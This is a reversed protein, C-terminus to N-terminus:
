KQTVAGTITGGLSSKITITSVSSVVVQLSYKGRGNNVMTGLLQGTASNFLTLTPTTSSSTAEAKLALKRTDFQATTIQLSDLPKLVTAGGTRTVGDIIGSITVPTDVAVPQLTITFNASSAGAPVVVSGPTAAVAPNSSTLSVVAASDAPGTLTVTGAINFIGFQSAPNVTMSALSYPAVLSLGASQKVSNWTASIAAITPEAVQSTVIRFSGSNSGAPVVVEPGDPFLALSPDAALAVTAGGAPAPGGLFVTGQGSKGGVVSEPNLTMLALLPPNGSTNRLVVVNNANLNAVAFDPSGNGDLDAAVLSSSAFNGTEVPIEAQISGEGNGLMLTIASETGAKVAIDAKGDGNFDAIVPAGVLRGLGVFSAQGFTGDGNGLFISLTGGNPRNPNFTMVLDLNGDGNLDGAAVPGPNSGIGELQIFTGDGNGQFMRVQERVQTVLDLHGDKNFDTLLVSLVADPTASSPVSMSSQVFTGDGNGLLIVVNNFIGVVLDLKGDGNVDGAAISFSSTDVTVDTGRTLTGDGNGLLVTVVGNDSAAAVDLKGDGNFDGVVLSTPNGGVSFNRAPQYTGDPKGLLISLNQSGANATAIDPVGDGNFDGVAVAVVNTGASYNIPDLFGPVSQAFTNNALLVAGIISILHMGRVRGLIPKM